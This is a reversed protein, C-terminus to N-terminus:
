TLDCMRADQTGEVKRTLDVLTHIRYRIVPGATANAKGAFAWFFRAVFVAVTSLWGLAAM